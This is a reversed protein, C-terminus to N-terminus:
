RTRIVTVQARASSPLDAGTSTTIEIVADPTTSSGQVTFFGGTSANVTFTRSLNTGAGLPLVQPILPYPNQLVDPPPVPNGNPDVFDSQSLQLFLGPYDWTRSELLPDLGPLGSDDVALMGLFRALLQDWQLNQGAVVQVAREVNDVGALFAPGGSSLERFLMAENSGPLQGSGSPGFQDGLWRAFMYAFGRMRLSETGGPDGGSGSGLAMTTSPNLMFDASRLVNLFHFDNFADAAVDDGAPAVAVLDLNERTGHGAEALGIIEEALHAIGEDLWTDEDDSFDGGGITVRQQTNLLHFFEHGLTTRALSLAEEVQVPDSFQGGPDPAIVYFLEAENSAPCSQKSTIDGGWFFGAILTNSGAATLQNVEATILAVVVGNGDIDAPSGFYDTEIPFITQDLLQGLSQYDADTLVGAVQVDEAIAFNSGVFKFEADITNTSNCDAQLSSNIALTYTVMEGATPPRTAVSFRVGGEQRRARPVAPRAGVRRLERRTSERLRDELLVGSLRRQVSPPLASLSFAPAAPFTQRRDVVSSSATAADRLKIRMSTQAGFTESASQVIVEYDRREAGGDLQFARVEDADTLVASEGPGLDLAIAPTAGGPPPPPPPPAPGTGGDGGCAAAVLAVAAAPVVRWADPWARPRLRRLRGIM